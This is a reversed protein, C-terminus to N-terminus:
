PTQDRVVKRFSDIVEEQAFHRSNDVTQQGGVFVHKVARPTAGFVLHSVLTRPDLGVLNPDDLDLCVLDAKQGVAIAGVTNWGLAHAGNRQLMPWLTQATEFHQGDGKIAAMVNRRETVLREQYEIARAEAWLDIEAQSDSGLAIPM